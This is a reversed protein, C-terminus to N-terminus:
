SSPVCGPMRGRHRHQYLILRQLTKGPAKFKRHSLRRSQQACRGLGRWHLADRRPRAVRRDADESGHSLRYPWALAASIRGALPQKVTTWRPHRIEPTPRRRGNLHRICRVAQCRIATMAARIAAGDRQGSRRIRGSAPEQRGRAPVRSRCSGPAVIQADVQDAGPPGAGGAQVV